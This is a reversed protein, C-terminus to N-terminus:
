HDHRLLTAFFARPSAQELLLDLLEVRRETALHAQLFHADDMASADGLITLLERLHEGGGLAIDEAVDSAHAELYLSAAAHANASTSTSFELVEFSCTTSFLLDNAEEESLDHIIYATLLISSTLLSLSTYLKREDLREQATADASLLNLSCITLLCLLVHQLHFSKATM